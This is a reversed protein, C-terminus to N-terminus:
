NARDGGDEEAGPEVECGQSFFIKASHVQSENTISYSNGTFNLTLGPDTTISEKYSLSLNCRDIKRMVRRQMTGASSEGAPSADSRDSWNCAAIKHSCATRM